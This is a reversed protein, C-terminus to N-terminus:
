RRRPPPPLPPLSPPPPPPPPLRPPPSAFSPRSASPRGTVAATMSVWVSRSRHSAAAPKVGMGRQRGQASAAAATANAASTAATRPPRGRSTSPTTTRGSSAAAAAAAPAVAREGRAATASLNAAAAPTVRGDPHVVLHGPRPHQQRHRYQRRREGQPPHRHGSRRQVVIAVGARAPQALRHACEDGNGAPPVDDGLNDGDVRRRRPPTGTTGRAVHGAHPDGTCTVSPSPPPPPSPASPVASSTASPAAAARSAAWAAAGGRRPPATATARHVFAPPQAACTTPRTAWKPRRAQMSMRPRPAAVARRSTSAPRM